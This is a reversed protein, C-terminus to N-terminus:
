GRHRRLIAARPLCRDTSREPHGGGLGLDHPTRDLGTVENGDHEAHGVDVGRLVRIREGNVEVAADITVDGETSPDM